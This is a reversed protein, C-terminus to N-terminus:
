AWWLLPTDFRRGHHAQVARGFGELLAYPDDGCAWVLPDLPQTVGPELEVGLEQWAEIREIERSDGVPAVDVYNYGHRQRLFGVLFAEGSVADWGAAQLSSRHFAKEGARVPELYPAPGLADLRKVGCWGCGGRDLFIRWLRERGSEVGGLRWGARGIALPTRGGNRLSARLASGGPYPGEEVVCQLGVEDLAEEPSLRQGEVEVFFEEARM